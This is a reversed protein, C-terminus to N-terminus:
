SIGGFAVVWYLCRCYCCLSQGASAFNAYVCIGTCLWLGYVTVPVRSVSLGRVIVSWRDVLWEWCHKEEWTFFSCFLWCCVFFCVSPLIGDNLRGNFWITAPTEPVSTECFHNKTVTSHFAKKNAISQRKLPDDETKPLPSSKGIEYCGM